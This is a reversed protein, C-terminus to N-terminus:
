AEGVLRNIKTYNYWITSTRGRVEPNPSYHRFHKGEIWRGERYSKVERKTMGTEEILKREKIWKDDNSNEAM